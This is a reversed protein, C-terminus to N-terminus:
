KYMGKACLVIYNQAMDLGLDTEGRNFGWRSEWRWTGPEEIPPIIRGLFVRPETNREKCIAEPRVDFVLIERDSHKQKTLKIL